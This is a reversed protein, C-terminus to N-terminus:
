NRAVFCTAGSAKLRNCLANAGDQSLGVVRVRYIDRGNVSAKATTPQLGGLAPGYQQRLRAIVARAEAESGPAALQVAFPGGAGASAAAVPAPATSATTQTPPVLNRPPAGVSPTSAAPTVAGARETTKPAAPAAPAASAQPPRVPAAGPPQPRAAPAPTSSAPSAVPAPPPAPDPAITGDPRVAVTRVRRPEPFFSNAAAGAPAPPEARAGARAAERVDVPQEERNVVRSAAIREDGNRDLISASQAAQGAPKPQEPQIKVPGAAAKITPAERPTSPGSRMAYTIGAGVVCGAVAGGILALPRRSRQAPAAPAPEDWAPDPQPEGYGQPQGYGPPQAYAQPDEYAPAPAPARWDVDALQAAAAREARYPDLDLAPASVPYAPSAAYPDYPASAAYPDPRPAGMLRAYDGLTQPAHPQHSASVSEGMPDPAVRREVAAGGRLRREFEELDIPQRARAAAENM